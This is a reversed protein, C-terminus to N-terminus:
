AQRTQRAGPPPPNNNRRNRSSTAPWAQALMAGIAQTIPSHSNLILRERSRAAANHAARHRMYQTYAAETSLDPHLKYSGGRMEVAGYEIMRQLVSKIAQPCHKSLRAIIAKERKPGDRLVRHIARGTNSKTM